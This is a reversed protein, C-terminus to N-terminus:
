SANGHTDEMQREYEAFFSAQEEAYFRDEEYDPLFMGAAKAYYFFRQQAFQDKARELRRKDILRSM